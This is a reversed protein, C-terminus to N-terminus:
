GPVGANALEDAMENGPHGSHGKVWQWDVERGQRLQDLEMWLDQNKVPKGAATKWGKKKWGHIWTTIGNKVYSSDTWIQLGGQTNKLAEITAILEMRNNTTDM